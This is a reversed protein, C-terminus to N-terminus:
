LLVAVGGREVGVVAVEAGNRALREDTAAITPVPRPPPTISDPRPDDLLACSAHGTLQPMHVNRHVAQQESSWGSGRQLQPKLPSASLTADSDPM